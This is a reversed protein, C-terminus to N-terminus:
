AVAGASSAVATFTANMWQSYLTVYTPASVTLPVPLVTLNYHASQYQALRLADITVNVTGSFNAPATYLVTALLARLETQNGTLTLSTAPTGAGLALSGYDVSVSVRASPATCRTLLSISVSLSLARAPAGACTINFPLAITTAEYLSRAATSISLAMPLFAAQVTLTALSRASFVSCEITTQASL